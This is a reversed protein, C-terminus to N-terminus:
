LLHYNEVVTLAENITDVHLKQFIHTRHTKVTNVSIFLNKAIEENTM